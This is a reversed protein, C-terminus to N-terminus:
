LIVGIEGRLKVFMRLNNACLVERFDCDPMGAFFVRSAFSIYAYIEHIMMQKPLIVHM